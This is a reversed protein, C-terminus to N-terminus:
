HRFNHREGPLVIESLMNARSHWAQQVEDLLEQSILNRQSLLTAADFRRRLFPGKASSSPLMAVPKIGTKLRHIKLYFGQHETYGPFTDHQEDGDVGKQCDTIWNYASELSEGSGIMGVRTVAPHRDPMDLSRPGFLAMGARASVHEREGCFLLSPEDLYSCGIHPTPLQSRTRPRQAM